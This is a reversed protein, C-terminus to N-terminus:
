NLKGNIYKDIEEGYQNTNISETIENWINSNKITLNYFEFASDKNGSYILDFIYQLAESLEPKSNYGNVKQQMEEKSPPKKKMFKGSLHYEGDVFELTLKPAPALACAVWRCGYSKDTGIIEKSANGDLDIVQLDKFGEKFYFRGITKFEKGLSFITYQYDRPAYEYLVDPIGDGTIDKGVIHVRCTQTNPNKVDRNHDFVLNDNHWIQLQVDGNGHTDRWHKITYNGEIKVTREWVMESEAVNDDSIVFDQKKLDTNGGCGFFFLAAIIVLIKKM